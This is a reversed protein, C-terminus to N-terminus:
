IKKLFIKEAHVIITKSCYKRNKKKNTSKLKQAQRGTVLAAMKTAMKHSNEFAFAIM